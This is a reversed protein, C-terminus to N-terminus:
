LYVRNIWNKQKFDSLLVVYNILVSNSIFSLRSELCM